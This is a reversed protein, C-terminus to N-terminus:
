RLPLSASDSSAWSCALLLLKASYAYFSFVDVAPSKLTM